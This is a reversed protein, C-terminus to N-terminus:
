SVTRRVDGPRGRQPDPDTGGDPGALGGAAGAGPEVGRVAAGAAQALRQEVRVGPVGPGSPDGRVGAAREGGRAYAEQGVRDADPHIGQGFLNLMQQESVLGTTGLSELGRGDWRGPSEGKATYYDGLSTYGRETSDAAAVQRTLYTYGDGATLKHLTM